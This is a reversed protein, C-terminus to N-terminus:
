GGAQAAFLDVQITRRGPWELPQGDRLLCVGIRDISRTQLFGRHFPVMFAQRWVPSGGAAAVLPVSGVPLGPLLIRLLSEGRLEAAPLKIGIRVVLWETPIRGLPLAAWITERGPPFEAMFSVTAATAAQTPEPLPSGRAFRRMAMAFARRVAPETRAITSSAYDALEADLQEDRDANLAALVAAPVPRGLVDSLYHLGSHLIAQLLRGRAEEVVIEWDLPEADLIRCADVAWDALPDGDASRIGHAVALILAHERSPVTLKLGRWNVPRSDAWLRDDDGQLRNLPIAFNHLDIEAQAKRFSWAHHAAIPGTVHLGRQWPVHDLSFGEAELIAEAEAQRDHPVLMDLDGVFREHAVRPDVTIRASGKVLMLPIGAEALRAVLPYAARLRVQNLTWIKRRYGAVRPRIEAEPELAAIRAAIVGLMRVENWPAVDLDAVERWALWAARAEEGDLLAARVLLDLRGKPLSPPPAAHSLHPLQPM